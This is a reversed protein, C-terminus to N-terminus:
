KWLIDTLSWAMVLVCKDRIEEIAVHELLVMIM